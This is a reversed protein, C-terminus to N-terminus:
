IYENDSDVIIYNGFVVDINYDQKLENLTTYKKNTSTHHKDDENITTEEDWNTDIKNGSIIRDIKNIIDSDSNIYYNYFISLLIIIIGIVLVLIGRSKNKSFIISLISLLITVIGFVFAIRIISEHSLTLLIPIFIIIFGILGVLLSINVLKNKM